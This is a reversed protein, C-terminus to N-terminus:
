DLQERRLGAASGTSWSSPGATKGENGGDQEVEAAIRAASGEPLLAIVAGGWGAGTLRAGLGGLAMIREVLRDAEVCSSQFHDRLSQHGEVMLRGLTVLDGAALAKAAARTRVVESVVHRVRADLPPPLLRLWRASDEAPLDALSAVRIGRDALLGLSETCEQRRRGYEGDALRHSVGTEFVWIRQTMPVQVVTGAGSEFLLASGRAGLAVVTQDMRGCPVGVEDHEALWAIEILAEATLKRGTMLALAKATALCLAASSSLGGGVPISSAVAVEAGPLTMGGRKLVRAVGRLYDTWTGSNPAAPDFPTVTGDLTSVAFWDTAPAAVVAVRREIAFPLVPGGNYDTHEGLLNIRGPASAAVVPRSAFREQFLSTAQRLPSPITM